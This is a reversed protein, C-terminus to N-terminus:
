TLVSDLNLDDLMMAAIIEFADVQDVVIKPYYPQYSDTVPINNEIWAQGIETNPQLYVIPGQEIVIIDNQLHEEQSLNGDINREGGIKAIHKCNIQGKGFPNVGDAIIEIGLISTTDLEGNWLGGQYACRMGELREQFSEESM